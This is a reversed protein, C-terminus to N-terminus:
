EYGYGMNNLFSFELHNLRVVSLPFCTEKVKEVLFYPSGKVYSGSSLEHQSPVLLEIKITNNNNNHKGFVM